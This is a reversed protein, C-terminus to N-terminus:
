PARDPSAGQGPHGGQRVAPLLARGRLRPRHDGGGPDARGADPDGRHGAARPDGAPGDGRRLGRAPRRPNRPGPRAPVTWRHRNRKRIQTEQDSRSDRPFRKRDAMRLLECAFEHIHPCPARLKGARLARSCSLRNFGSPAGARPARPFDARSHRCRCVPGRNEPQAARCPLLSGRRLPDRVTALLPAAALAGYTRGVPDPYAPRLPRIPPVGTLYPSGFQEATIAGDSLLRRLAARAQHKDETTPDLQLFVDVLNAPSLIDQTDLLRLAAERTQRREAQTRALQVLVSALQATPWERRDIEGIRRLLADRAQRKDEMTPDLQVFRAVITESAARDTQSVFLALLAELAQRKEATSLALRELSGEISEDPRASGLALLTARAQSQDEETPDLDVLCDVLWKARLTKTEVSLLGLLAARLSNKEEATAALQRMATLLGRAERGYEEVGFMRVLSDLAQSKDDPTPDLKVLGDVLEAAKSGDTEGALLRLLAARAAGNSTAWRAASLDDVRASRALDERAQGILAALEHSWDDASSESAVRALMRRFEWGGDIASLDGPARDSRCACRILSRLLQDREPSMAIAMPAAYEWDPDYWLHPLLVEVAQDIGFAAIYEAVLYERISRHVFRRLITGTDIDPLGVPAAVNDVANHDAESLEARGTPIDDAWTGVQSVPHSTAGTWAWARLARRCSGVDPQSDNGGRWRGTLMRTLVRGYLDRRADPLPERGGIVCYFALILPVTATQQLEPRRAIQAALDNGREAYGAYWSRIVSEVDDPYRLPQLEGIQHAPSAQDIVLQNNWSTPRSTLVIRWPLTDAQRLRQDSGHAEDLSDIVLVTPTNRETFSEVLAAGIRSGGLDGLQYLASTVAAERVDGTAAFLRSCTTYLPLEVEDVPKGAALAELADEACRRATRKALWTKGSGPGGLIVLRHCQRTVKDADADRAPDSGGAVVRLKREIAAPSLVPGSFRLDHPWPDRGLWDILARLYVTFKGKHGPVAASAEDWRRDSLQFARNADLVEGLDGAIASWGIALAGDPHAPHKSAVVVGCVAGTRLNLVAAGSMGPKITDSALDLYATPAVGHTARYTLRAPTLQVAGGEVPYGFVLFRDESSPWERDIQVCPHGGLVDVELVAIDPYDRDLAPIPRGRHALVAARGSVPIELVPHGDREWRVALAASNGIVHVCTLVKGPAVFFGAGPMPGGTVRM